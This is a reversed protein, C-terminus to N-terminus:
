HSLIYKIASADAGLFFTSTFTSFTSADGEVLFVVDRGAQLIPVILAAARAWARALVEADHTMPFVLEIADEPIGLGAREVIGLAHSRGGKKRVPYCWRADSQIAEWARRTILGADGSGLSVGILKSKNL